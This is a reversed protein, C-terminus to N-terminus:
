AQAATLRIVARAAAARVRLVPDDRLASVASSAGGLGHRAVVKAALERVRWSNDGLAAVLTPLAADEWAWLLGRAAWVRLWYDPGAGEGGSGEWRAPPGGLAVVLASDATRGALLEICGAVVAAKGRRACEAEVSQRPTLGWFSPAGM